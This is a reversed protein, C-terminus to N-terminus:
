ETADERETNECINRKPQRGSSSDWRGARGRWECGRGETNPEMRVMHTNNGEGHGEKCVKRGKHGKELKM